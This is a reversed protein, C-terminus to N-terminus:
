STRLGVLLRLLNREEDRLVSFEVGVLMRGNDLQEHRRIVARLTVGIQDGSISAVQVVIPGTLGEVFTVDVLELAAGDLSVDVVRCVRWEDREDLRYRAAWDAAYRPSRRQEDNAM